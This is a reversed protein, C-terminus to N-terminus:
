KNGSKTWINQISTTTVKKPEKDKFYLVYEMHMGIGIFGSKIASGGWTSGNIRARTPEPCFTKHGSILCDAVEPDTHYTDKKIVYLTNQTKVTFTEENEIEHFNVGKIDEAFHNPQFSIFEIQYISNRTRFTDESIIEEVVSTAWDSGVYFSEGVKVPRLMLGKIAFGPEINNPVKADPLEKLKTLQILPRSNKERGTTFMKALFPFVDANNQIMNNRNSM